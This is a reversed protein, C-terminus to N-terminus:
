RKHKLQVVSNLNVLSSFDTAANSIFFEDTLKNLMCVCVCVGRM